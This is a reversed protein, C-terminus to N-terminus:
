SSSKERLSIEATILLICKHMISCVSTCFSVLQFLSRSFCKNLTLSTQFFILHHRCEAEGSICHGHIWCLFSRTGLQVYRNLQCLLAALSSKWFFKVYIFFSRWFQYTCHFTILISEFYIQLFRIRYIKYRWLSPFSVYKNKCSAPKLTSNNTKAGTKIIQTLHLNNIIGMLSLLVM